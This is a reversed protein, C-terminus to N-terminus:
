PNATATVLLLTGTPALLDLAEFTYERGRWLIVDMASPVFGEATPVSALITSVGAKQETGDSHLTEAGVRETPLEVAFCDYDVRTQQMPDWPEGIAENRVTRWTAPRGFKALLRRALAPSFAM